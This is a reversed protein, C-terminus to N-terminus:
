AGRGPAKAGQNRGHSVGYASRTSTSVSSLNEGLLVIVQEPPIGDRKNSYIRVFDQCWRNHEVIANEVTTWGSDGSYVADGYLRRRRADQRSISDIHDLKTWDVSGTNLIYDVSVYLTNSSLSKVQCHDSRRAEYRDRPVPHEAEKIVDMSHLDAVTDGM